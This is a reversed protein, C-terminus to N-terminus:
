KTDLKEHLFAKVDELYYGATHFLNHGGGRNYRISKVEKQHERLVRDLNDFNNQLEPEDSAEILLL